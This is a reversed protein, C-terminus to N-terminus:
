GFFYDIGAFAAGGAALLGGGAIIATGLPPNALFIAGGAGAVATGSSAGLVAYEDFPDGDQNGARDLYIGVAIMVGNGGSVQDIEELALERLGDFETTMTTMMSRRMFHKEGPHMAM